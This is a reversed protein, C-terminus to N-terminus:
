KRKDYFIGDITSLSEYPNNYKAASKEQKKLNHLDLQIALKEKVLLANVKQNMEILKKGLEQDEQSFPPEMKDMFGERLELLTQIKNIKQDRNKNTDKELLTLLEVTVQYFDKVTSM